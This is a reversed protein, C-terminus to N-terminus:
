DQIANYLERKIKGFLRMDSRSAVDDFISLVQPVTLHAKEKWRRVLTWLRSKKKRFWEYERFRPSDKRAIGFFLYALYKHYPIDACKNCLCMGDIYTWEYMYIPDRDDIKLTTGCRDCIILEKAM